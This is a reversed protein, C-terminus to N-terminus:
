ENLQFFNGKYMLVVSDVAYEIKVGLEEIIQSNLNLWIIEDDDKIFFYIVIKM